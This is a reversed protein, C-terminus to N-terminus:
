EYGHTSLLISRFINPITILSHLRTLDLFEGIIYIFAKPAQSLGSTRLLLKQLSILGRKPRRELLDREPPGRPYGEGPEQFWIACFLLILPAAVSRPVMNSYPLRFPLLYETILFRMFQIELLSLSFHYLEGPPSLHWAQLHPSPFDEFLLLQLTSSTGKPLSLRPGTLPSISLPLPRPPFPHQGHSPCNQFPHLYKKLSSIYGLLSLGKQGNATMDLAPSRM